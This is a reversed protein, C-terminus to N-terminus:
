GQMRSQQQLHWWNCCSCVTYALSDASHEAYTIITSHNAVPPPVPCTHVRLMLDAAAVEGQDQQHVECAPWGQIIAAHLVCLPRVLARGHGAHAGCFVCHILPLWDLNHTCLGDDAIIVPLLLGASACVLCCTVFCCVTLAWKYVVVAHMRWACAYCPLLLLM